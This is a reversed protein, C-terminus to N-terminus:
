LCIYQLQSLNLLLGLVDLWYCLHSSIGLLFNWFRWGALLLPPFQDGALFELVEQWPIEHVTGM